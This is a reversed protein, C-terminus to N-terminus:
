PAAASHLLYERAAEDSVQDFDCYFQGVAWFRQPLYLCVFEDSLEQIERAARPSSVPVAVIVKKPRQASEKSRL